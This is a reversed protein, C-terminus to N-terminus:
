ARAVTKCEMNQTNLKAEERKNLRIEKLQKGRTNGTGKDNRAYKLWIIGETQLSAAICKLGKVRVSTFSWVYCFLLFFLDNADKQSENTYFTLFLVFCMDICEYSLRTTTTTKGDKFLHM